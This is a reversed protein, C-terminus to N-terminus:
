KCIIFNVRDYEQFHISILYFTINSFVESNYPYMYYASSYTTSKWSTSIFHFFVFASLMCLPGIHFPDSIFFLCSIIKINYVETFSFYVLVILIKDKKSSKYNLMKKFDPHINFIAPGMGYPLWDCTILYYRLIVDQWVNWALNGQQM